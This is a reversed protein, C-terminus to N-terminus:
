WNCAYKMIEYSIMEIYIFKKIWIFCEENHSNFFLESSAKDVRNILKIPIKYGTDKMKVMLDILFHIPILDYKEILRPFYKTHDLNRGTPYAILVNILDLDSLENLSNKNESLLFSEIEPDLNFDVFIMRAKNIFKCIEVLNSKILISSFGKKDSQPNRFRFSSNKYIERTKLHYYFFNTLQLWGSIGLEEIHLNIYDFPDPFNELISLNENTNYEIPYYFETYHYTSLISKIEYFKKSKLLDIILNISQADILNYNEDKFKKSIKSNSIMPSSEIKLSKKSQNMLVDEPLFDNSSSVLKDYQDLAQNNSTTDNLKLMDLRALRHLREYTLKAFSGFHRFM